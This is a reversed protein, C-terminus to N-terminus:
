KPYKEVKNKVPPVTRLYAYIAKLDDDTMGALVSLPMITNDRGPNHSYNKEERYPVFKNLFQEETWSGIGTSDPTINASTVKFSGVDFTWGGAFMRARDPGRETMPTHCTGCDAANVLYGGYAVKDTTPPLQNGDVSPQLAQAPYVAAIPMFLQRDAIKNKIPKLTRLYAIISMLDQKAMHNFNAYPMLPFLTDGRKSVGQTIARLIEEDTWTGIGTENDPTINRGYIKGPLGLKEDFLFGGGGESGPVVPGSYKTFDRKSHCDICGAVHNFLYKGRDLMATTSDAKGTGKTDAKKDSDKCSTFYISSLVLSFIAAIALFKRM